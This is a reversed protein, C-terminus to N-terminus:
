TNHNNQDDDELIVYEVDITQEQVTRKPDVAASSSEASVGKKKMLFGLVIRYIIWGIIALVIFPFLWAILQFVVFIVGIVIVIIVATIMFSIFKSSRNSGYFYFM